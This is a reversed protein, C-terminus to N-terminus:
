PMSLLKTRQGESKNLRGKNLIMHATIWLFLNRHLMCLNFGFYFVFFRNKNEGVCTYFDSCSLVHLHGDTHSQLYSPAGTQAM